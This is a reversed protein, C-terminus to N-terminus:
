GTTTVQEPRAAARGASARVSLAPDASDACVVEEGPAHEVVFTL